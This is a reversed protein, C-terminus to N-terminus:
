EAFYIIDSIERPNKRGCLNNKIEDKYIFVCETGSELIYADTCGAGDLVKVLEEKTMGSSHTSNSNSVVVFYHGRGKTAICTYAMRTQWDDTKEAPIGDLMIATGGCFSDTIGEEILGSVKEETDLESGNVIRMTGDHSFMLIDGETRVYSFLRSGRIILGEKKYCCNDGNIALIAGNEAAMELPDGIKYKSYERETFATKICNMDKLTIDATYYDGEDALVESYEIRLKDSEYVDTEPDNKKIAYQELSETVKPIAVGFLMYVTFIILAILAARTWIKKRRRSKLRIINRKVM